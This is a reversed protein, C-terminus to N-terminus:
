NDAFEPYLCTAETRPLRPLAFLRYLVIHREYKESSSSTRGASTDEEAAEEDDEDHALEEVVLNGGRGVKAGITVSESPHLVERPMLSAIRFAYKHEYGDPRPPM